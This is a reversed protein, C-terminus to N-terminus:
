MFEDDELHLNSRVRRTQCVSTYASLAKYGGLTEIEYNTGKPVVFWEGIEVNRGNIKLDGNILIRFIDEDHKHADINKAAPVEVIYFMNKSYVPYAISKKTISDDDGDRLLPVSMDSGFIVGGASRSKEPDANYDAISKEIRALYTAFTEDIERPM